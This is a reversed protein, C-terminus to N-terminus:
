YLDFKQLLRVGVFYAAALLAVWTLSLLLSMTTM